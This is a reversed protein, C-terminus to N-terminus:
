VGGSARNLNSYQADANWDTVKFYSRLIYEAYNIMITTKRLHSNRDEEKLLKVNDHSSFFTWNTFRSFPSSIRHCTQWHARFPM